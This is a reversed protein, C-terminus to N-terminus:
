HSRALGNGHGEAEKHPGHLPEIALQEPHAPLCHLAELPIDQVRHLRYDPAKAIRKMVELAVMASDDRRRGAVRVAIVYEPSIIFGGLIKDLAYRKGAHEKILDHEHRFAEHVLCECSAGNGPGLDPQVAVGFARGMVDLCPEDVMVPFPLEQM